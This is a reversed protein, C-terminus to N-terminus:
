PSGEPARIKGLGDCVDCDPLDDWKFQKGTGDCPECTPLRAVAEGDCALYNGSEVAIVVARKQGDTLAPATTAPPQAPPVWPDPGEPAVFKVVEWPTRRVARRAIGAPKDYWQVKEDADEEDDYLEFGACNYPDQGGYFVCWETGGRPPEATLDSGDLGILAGIHDAWERPLKALGARIRDQQSDGLQDAHQAAPSALTPQFTCALAAVHRLYDPNALPDGYEHCWARDAVALRATLDDVDVPTALLGSAALSRADNLYRERTREPLQEWRNLHFRNAVLQRAAQEVVDGAPKPEAPQAAVSWSEILRVLEDASLHGDVYSPLSMVDDRWEEPLLVAQALRAELAAITAADKDRRICHATLTKGAMGIRKKLADMDAQKRASLREVEAELAAVRARARDREGITTDHTAMEMDAAQEAQDRQWVAEAHLWRLQDHEAVAKRAAKYLHREAHRNVEYVKAQRLIPAVYQRVIEHAVAQSEYGEGRRALELEAAIANAIQDPTTDRPGSM